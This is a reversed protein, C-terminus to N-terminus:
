NKNDKSIIEELEAWRSYLHDLEATWSNIQIYISNVKDAQASTEPDQIDSQAKALQEELQLIKKEMNEYEFKEKYSLKKKSIQQTVETKNKQKQLSSEYDLNKQFWEEWQFYDAFRIAKEQWPFRNNLYIIEDALADMFYRDHTVLVLAGPFSSLSGQLDELSQIDLDNTPEDLILLQSKKLMIQALRLRSKEGGSLQKVPLDMQQYSFNFKELYSKAFVFQGQFDVYDGEPCINQLLSKELDLTTKEQEFYSVVLNEVRKVQGRQPLIEGTLVKLLTSKGAGNDGLLALRSKAGLILSFDKWLINGGMEICINNLEVLKQPQRQTETFVLDLSRSKTKEKLHEVQQKLESANEIRAKQKTQRAIAGRRLWETERTLTNKKAQLDRRQSEIRSQKIEIYDAFNGNFQFLLEPNQPDLDWIKDATRQLFLRDHTIMLYTIKQESLFDELWLISSVDLHNTPEDLLLVDPTLMLQKALAVRKQWGGSLSLVKQDDPWRSLDLKAIWEYAKAHLDSSHDNNEDLLYNLITHSNTFQPSQELYGVQTSGQRVVQGKDPKIKGCIIKLLTSKGAGNPGVLGIKEGTSIGFSLNEFLVKGVFSKSIQVGSILVSM